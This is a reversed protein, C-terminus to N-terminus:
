WFDVGRLLKLAWPSREECDGKDPLGRALMAFDVDLEGKEGLVALGSKWFASLPPDAVFLILKPPDVGLLLKNPSLLELPAGLVGVGLM